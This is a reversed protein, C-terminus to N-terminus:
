SASGARTAATIVPQVGVVQCGHAAVVSGPAAIRIQNGSALDRSRRCVYRAAHRVGPLTASLAEESAVVVAAAAAFRLVDILGRHGSSLIGLAARCSSWPREGSCQLRRRM